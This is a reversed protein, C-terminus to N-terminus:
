AGEPNDTAGPEAAKGRQPYPRPLEHPNTARRFVSRNGHNTVAIRGDPLVDILIMWGYKLVMETGNSIPFARWGDGEEVLRLRCEWPKGNPQTMRWSHEDPTCFFEILSVDRFDEISDSSESLWTGTPLEKM